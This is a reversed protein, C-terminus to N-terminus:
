VSGIVSGFSFRYSQGRRNPTVQSFPTRCLPEQYNWPLSPTAPEIGAPPEVGFWCGLGPGVGPRKCARLAGSRRKGAIQWRIVLRPRVLVCQASRRSRKRDQRSLLSRATPLRERSGGPCRSLSRVRHMARRLRNRTSRLAFPSAEDTIALAKTPSIWPQACPTVTPIPIACAPNSSLSCDSHRQQECPGEM